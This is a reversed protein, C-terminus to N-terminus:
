SPSFAVRINLPRVRRRNPAPPARMAPLNLRGSNPNHRSRGQRIVAGTRENFAKFAEGTPAEGFLDVMIEQMEQLSCGAILREVKAVLDDLDDIFAAQEHLSGPWRDTLVDEACVPDRGGTRGTPM